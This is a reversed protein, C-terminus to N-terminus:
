VPKQASTLVYYRVGTRAPLRALLALKSANLFQSFSIRGDKLARVPWSALNRLCRRWSELTADAVEVNIFGADELQQKLTQPEPVYNAEPINKHCLWRQFLMDSTILRGGPKLVRFAEAYFTRRTDFHFAAEVCIINDFSAEEFDLMTADMWLFTCGPANEKARALQVDSINVATVDQPQYYRLIQRTSAGLGCAVDLINGRKEPIMSLLKEILNESAEKATKTDPLWYGLNYFDSNDWYAAAIPTTMGEDYSAAVKDRM